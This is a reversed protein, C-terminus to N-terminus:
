VTPEPYNLVAILPCLLTGRKRHGEWIWGAKILILLQVDHSCPWSVSELPYNYIITVVKTCNQMDSILWIVLVHRTKLQNIDGTQARTPCSQGTPWTQTGIAFIESNPVALAPCQTCFSCLLPPLSQRSGIQSGPCSSSKNSFDRIVCVLLLHFYFYEM